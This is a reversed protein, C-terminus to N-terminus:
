PVAPSRPGKLALSLTKIPSLGAPKNANDILGIKATFGQKRARNGQRRLALGSLRGGFNSLGQCIKEPISGANSRAVHVTSLECM